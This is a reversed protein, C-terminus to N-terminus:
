KLKTDCIVKKCIEYDRQTAPALKKFKPSEVYKGCLWELTGTDPVDPKTLVYWAAIVQEPKADAGALKIEKGDRLLYWRGYNFYVHPPVTRDKKKRPRGM